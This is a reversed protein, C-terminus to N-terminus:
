RLFVLFYSTGPMVNMFPMIAQNQCVGVFPETQGFDVVWETLENLTHLSAIVVCM